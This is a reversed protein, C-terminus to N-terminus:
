TDKLSTAIPTEMAVFVKAMPILTHEMNRDGGVIAAVKEFAATSHDGEVMTEDPM